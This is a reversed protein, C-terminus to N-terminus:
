GLWGSRMRAHISTRRMAVNIVCRIVRKDAIPSRCRRMERLKNVTGEVLQPALSEQVQSIHRSSRKRISQSCDYLVSRVENRYNRGAAQNPRASFNVEKLFF